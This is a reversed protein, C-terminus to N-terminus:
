LSDRCPMRKSAWCRSRSRDTSDRLRVVRSINTGVQAVQWMLPSLPIFTVWAIRRLSEGVVQKGLDACLPGIGRPRPGHHLVEAAVTVALRGDVADVLLHFLDHGVGIVLNFRGLLDNVSQALLPQEALRELLWNIEGVEVKPVVVAM